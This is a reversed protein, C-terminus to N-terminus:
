EVAGVPEGTEEDTLRDLLVGANFPHGAEQLCESIYDNMYNIIEFGEPDYDKLGQVFQERSMPQRKSQVTTPVAIGDVTVTVGVNAINTM